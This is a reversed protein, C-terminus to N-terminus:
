ADPTWDLHIGVFTDCDVAGLTLTGDNLFYDGDNDYSGTGALTDDAIWSGLSSNIDFHGCVIVGIALSDDARRIATGNSPYSQGGSIFTGQLATAEGAKKPLKVKSFIWAAAAGPDSICLDKASVAPSILMALTLPAAGAGKTVATQM